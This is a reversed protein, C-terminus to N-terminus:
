KFFQIIVVVLKFFWDVKKLLLVIVQSSGEKDLEMVMLPLHQIKVVLLTM